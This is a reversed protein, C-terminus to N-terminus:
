ARPISRSLRQRTNDIMVFEVDLRVEIQGVQVQTLAAEVLGDFLVLLRQIRRRQILLKGLTQVIEGDRERTKSVVFAGRLEQILRELLMLEVAVRDLVLQTHPM